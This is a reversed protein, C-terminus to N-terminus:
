GGGRKGKWYIKQSSSDCDSDQHYSDLFAGFAKVLENGGVRETKKTRTVKVTQIGM